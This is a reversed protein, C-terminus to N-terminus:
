LSGLSTHGENTTPKSMRLALTEDTAGAGRSEPITFYFIAGGFAQNDSWLRGGHARVITRSLSLGLGLGNSKTSYYPQFIKEETGSPIGPGTDAVSIQIFSQEPREARLTIVRSSEAQRSMADVANLILNILVQQLQVRDGHISPLAPTLETVIRVKRAILDYKILQTVEQILENAQLEEPNFTGKKVLTRMRSIVEGARRDDQVIDDLIDEIQKL